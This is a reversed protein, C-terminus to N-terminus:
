CAVPRGSAPDSCIAVDGRATDIGIGGTGASATATRATVDVREPTGQLTAVGGTAFGSCGAATMVFFLAAITKPSATRRADAFIKPM